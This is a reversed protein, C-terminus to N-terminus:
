EALGFSNYIRKKDISNYATRMKEIVELSVNNSAVMYLNLEAVPKGINFLKEANYKHIITTSVLMPAFWIESRGNYMKLFQQEEDSPSSDIESFGKELLMKETSAKSRTLIAGSLKAEDFSNISKESSPTIFVFSDRYVLNIWQYKNERSKTKTFLLLITNGKDLEYIARALPKVEITSLKIDTKERMANFLDVVLGTPKDNEMYCYPPLEFCIIKLEEQSYIYSSILLAFFLSIITKM